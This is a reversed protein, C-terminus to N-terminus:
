MKSTQKVMQDTRVNRVIEPMSGEGGLLRLAEDYDLPKEARARKWAATARAYARLNDTVERGAAVDLAVNIPTDPPVLAAETTTARGQRERVQAVIM